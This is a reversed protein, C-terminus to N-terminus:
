KQGEKDKTEKEGKLGNYEGSNRSKEGKKERRGIGREGGDKRSQREGERMETERQGKRGRETL